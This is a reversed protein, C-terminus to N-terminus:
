LRLLKGGQEVDGLGWNWHEADGQEHKEPVPRLIQHQDHPQGKAGHQHSLLGRNKAADHEPRSGTNAIDPGLDPDKVGFHLLGVLHNGQTFDLHRTHPSHRSDLPGHRNIDTDLLCPEGISGKLIDLEHPEVRGSKDTAGHDDGPPAHFVETEGIGHDNILDAHLLEPFLSDFDTDSGDKFDIVLCGADHSETM